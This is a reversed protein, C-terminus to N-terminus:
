GIPSSESSHALEGGIYTAVVRGEEDILAMDARRGVTLEGRDALGLVGAPTRTASTLAQALGAGTQRALNFVAGPMTVVSGALRGDSTRPGDDGVTVPGDGLVYTGHGLGLAAMADTVLVTRDPGLLRWALKLTEPAIHIGDVIVIAPHESGLVAGVTGPERHGLGTMQNFLHTALTAYDDLATKATAHDANTHGISVVIGAEQLLRGVDGAGELEPAMTVIRVVGSEAWRKATAVDPSALHAPNHAGHMEPSIWPGEFHLGLVEAGSYDHPRRNSVVDIALDTVEDPSTVVTPVFSTVGLEPLRAGTEWITTPDQTFDHGFGGNIQIDILGPSVILGAADVTQGTGAEPTIVGDAFHLDQSALRDELLVRGGQITTM